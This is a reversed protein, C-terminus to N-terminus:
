NNYVFYNNSYPNIWGYAQWIKTVLRLAVFFFLIVRIINIIINNNYIACM